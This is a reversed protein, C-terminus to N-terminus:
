FFMVPEKRSMQDRELIALHRLFERDTFSKAGTPCRKVCAGCKICIGPVLSPNQRDISGMPCMKVCAGCRNCKGTDTVPKVKRIDFPKGEDDVAKFFRYPRNGPIEPNQPLNEGLEKAIISVNRGFESAIKLDSEDPRAYGLKRSFSHEGIFAAAAICRFGEEAMMDHLEALADDFNRNGYVVVPVGIANNGEITELYPKILNPVRGIYVPCGFIVIDDKCFSLKARAEPMTVDHTEFSPGELSSATASAIAEVVSKTTLTASFYLAHVRM